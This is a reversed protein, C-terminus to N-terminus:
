SLISRESCKRGVYMCHECLPNSPGLTGAHKALNCVAWELITKDMIHQLKATGSIQRVHKMVGKEEADAAENPSVETWEDIAANVYLSSHMLVERGQFIDKLKGAAKMQTNSRPQIASNGTSNYAEETLLEEETVAADWLEQLRRLWAVTFDTVAQMYAADAHLRTRRMGAISTVSTSCAM